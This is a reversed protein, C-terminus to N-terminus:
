EITIAEVPCAEKASNASDTQEKSIEDKIASAKGDDDMTFVAPCEEQCVGCGICLEKDVFAKM